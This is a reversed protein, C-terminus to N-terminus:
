RRVWFQNTGVPVFGLRHYLAIAPQNGAVVQLGVTHAGLSAAWAMLARMALDAGRQGRSDARTAICEAVAHGGAAVCLATSIVRGDRRVSFFARPDPIRRLIQRNVARRNETIAEMYVGLWEPNPDDTVIVGPPPAAPRATALMTVTTNNAIYGRAMLMDTLGLPQSLDYTQLQVPSVEAGYRAEVRDLASAM